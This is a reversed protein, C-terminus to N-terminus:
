SRLPLLWEGFTGVSCADNNFFDSDFSLLWGGSNSLTNSNLESLVILFDGSVNWSITTHTENVLVIFHENSTETSRTVGLTINRTDSELNYLSSTAGEMGEPSSFDLFWSM